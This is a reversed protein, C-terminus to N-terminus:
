LRIGVVVTKKIVVLEGNLNYLEALLVYYGPRVRRGEADTGDWVFIGERGLLQNQGLTETLQGGSTYIRFTGLWGPQDLLYSITTFSPGFSGEPDFVKPEITVRSEIDGSDIEQSNKRGPTAYDEGASASQWNKSTGSPSISSIRELSVGKSNRLLPHHLSNSYPFEEEVEGDPGVLVVTGGSIPFSPLSPIQIMRGLASKPYTIKLRTSDTSIALYGGPPLIQGREGFVRFQGIRGDSTRNALAWGELNLYKESTNRIEVFKPDGPLPDFLLENLILDGKQVKSPWVLSIPGLEPQENGLCNQLGILSLSLPFGEEVPSRLLIRIQKGSEIGVSDVAILPSIKVNEQSIFSLVPYTLEIYIQTSDLFYATTIQPLATGFEPDFVSNLMGPTGRQPSQSPLLFDSNGCLFVPNIVELSYGGGSFESGGWSTTTYSLEDVLEGGITKLSVQDGSNLLTPWSNIDLVKGYPQLLSAQNAPCLLLYEGGSLWFDPVSVSTRSNSLVLEGLRWEKNGPNFLEIYEVNPLDQDNRPAPMLENIVLSKFEFATPDFFTFSVLTDQLFNGELDPVSAVRIQYNKGEELSEPFGLIVTSDNVLRVAEPNQGELQYALPLQAFGPDVAEDFSLFLESTSYGKVLGIGPPDKDEVIEGFEFDDMVWRAASGSGPGYVIELKLFLEEESELGEPLDLVFRRFDLDENPFENEGGLLARGEYAGSLSKGWSFYIVAPRTGTGNKISKAWFSVKSDSVGEASLRVWLVGNFTSIPQIALARSGERGVGQAQFIRSSTSRVENGWWGPLFEEPFSQIQFPPEFSQIQAVASEHRILALFIGFFVLVAKRNM